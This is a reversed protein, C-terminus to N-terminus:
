DDHTARAPATSPTAGPQEHEHGTAAAPMSAPQSTPQSAAGGHHHHGHHHHHGAAPAEALPPWTLPDPDRLVEAVAQPPAAEAAPNAASKVPLREPLGATACGALAVGLALNLMRM